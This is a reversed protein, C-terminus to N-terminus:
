WDPGMWQDGAEESPPTKSAEPSLLDGWDTRKRMAEKTEPPVFDKGARIEWGGGLAKYMAVLSVVVSGSTETLLDQQQALFRQTDLVRQYTTLGERYQILSLDVSRKSARVSDSLFAVEEQRRLFAVMADEVEQAARLVANRYNVILQQFRADEVRARNKIRGYNFISWKIAPGAFIEISDSNFLDGFSSGDIGGARTFDGNSARLGISGFLSFHPYLDAKAVGIKASQAALQREALSIDPRRRLLEAPVGAAVHSPLSPIPKSEMLIPDLDGPLIGLLIALGNKAQRLSINLRPILSQTTKLLARAQTVDLETVEGGRFRAEAMKLSRKQIRVNERAIALRMELTRIAVYTRAVEATLAVLIDDYNAISVELNGVSSEVARRFKGWFDLEWAADFGINLDGYSLNGQFTNAANESASTYTLEGSVQQLQPYRNGVAIGLQARAELIRIGAIRLSLNQRYAKNVFANLIPDNFVTWWNSLDAPESTIKPDDQVIWAKPEPVPPTVYDPGVACGGFFLSLAILGLLPRTYIAIKSNM